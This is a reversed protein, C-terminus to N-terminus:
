HYDREIQEYDSFRFLKKVYQITVGTLIKM